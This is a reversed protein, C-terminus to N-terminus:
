ERARNKYGMSGRMRRFLRSRPRRCLREACADLELGGCFHEGHAHLIAVRLSRDHEYETYAEALGVLMEPVLANRKEVRNLGILFVEEERKTTILEAM